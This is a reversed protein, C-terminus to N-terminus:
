RKRAALIKLLKEYKALTLLEVHGDAFVANPLNAADVRELKEFAIVTRGRNEMENILAGAGIYEYDSVPDHKAVRPSHLIKGKRIYGDRLLTELNPPMKGDHDNAYVICAIGIQRLNNASQAQGALGQAKNVLKKVPEVIVKPDLRVIVTKGKAAATYLPKVNDLAAQLGEDLRAVERSAKQKLVTRVVDTNGFVVTRAGPFALGQRRGAYLATTGITEIPESGRMPTNQLIVEQNPAKKFRVIVAFNEPGIHLIDEFTLVATCDRINNLDIGLEEKMKRRFEVFWHAKGEDSIEAWLKSELIGKVDVYAIAKAGAPIYEEAWPVAASISSVALVVVCVGTVAAFVRKM